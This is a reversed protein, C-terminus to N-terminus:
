QVGTRKDGGNLETKVIEAEEIFADAKAMADAVSMPQPLTKGAVPTFVLMPTKTNRSEKKSPMSNLAYTYSEALKSLAAIEKETPIHGERFVHNRYNIVDMRMSEVHLGLLYSKDMRSIEGFINQASYYDNQATFTSVNYRQMVAEKIQQESKGLRMLEDVYRWRNLIEEEKSNLTVRDGKLFRTIQKNEDKM